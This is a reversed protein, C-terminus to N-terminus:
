PIETLVELCPEFPFVVEDVGKNVTDYGAIGVIFCLIHMGLIFEKVCRLNEM